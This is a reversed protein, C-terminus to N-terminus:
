ILNWACCRVSIVVFPDLCFYLAFEFLCQFGCDFLYHVFHFQYMGRCTNTNLASCILKTDSSKGTYHLWQCVISLSALRWM